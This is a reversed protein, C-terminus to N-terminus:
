ILSHRDVMDTAFKVQGKGLNSNRIIDTIGARYKNKETMRDRLVHSYCRLGQALGTITGEVRAFSFSIFTLIYRLHSLSIDWLRLPHKLPFSVMYQLDRFSIIWNKGDWDHVYELRTQFSLPKSQHTFLAKTPFIIVYSYM